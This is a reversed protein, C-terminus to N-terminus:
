RSVPASTSNRAKLLTADAAIAEALAIIKSPDATPRVRRVPVGALVRGLVEFERTRM